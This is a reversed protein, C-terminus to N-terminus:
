ATENEDEEETEEPDPEPEPEPEETEQNPVMYQNLEEPGEDMDELGRIENPSMWGPQQLSGLASKYYAARAAADGRLLGNVNHRLFYGLDRERETLLQYSYVEELDVLWPMLAYDVFQRALNEINSFTAKELDGIMHPPVRWIAALISRMLKRTENFQAEEATLTIRSAKFGGDMLQTSHSKEGGTQEQFSKIIRKMEEEKLVNETSLIVRPHAGNKFLRAGFKDLALSLGIHTKHLEIPNLGSIGDLSLSYYHFIDEKPYIRTGTNTEVKYTVEYRDDQEVTVRNNSVPLLEFVRGRVKNKIAIFNGEAATRAVLLRRFQRPTMWGNPRRKLIQYADSNFVIESGQSTKRMVNLPLQAVSESLVKVCAFVTPDEMATITNVAEGAESMAGQVSRLYELLQHSTSISNEPQKRKLWGFM